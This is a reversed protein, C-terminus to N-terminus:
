LKCIFLKKIYDLDFIHNEPSNHIHNKGVFHIHLRYFNPPYHIFSLSDKKIIKKEILIKKLNLIELFINFDLYKLSSINEKCWATYHFVNNTNKPDILLIFYRNEYLIKENKPITGNLIKIINENIKM